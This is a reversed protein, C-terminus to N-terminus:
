AYHMPPPTPHMHPHPLLQMPIFMSSNLVEEVIFKPRFAKGKGKEESRPPM